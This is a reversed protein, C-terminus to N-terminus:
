AENSVHDSRDSEQGDRVLKRTIRAETGDASGGHKAEDIFLDPICKLTRITKIVGRGYKIEPFNDRNLEKLANNSIMMEITEQEAADLGKLIARWIPGEKFEKWEQESIAM